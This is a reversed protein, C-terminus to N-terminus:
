WMFRALVSAIISGLAPTPHVTDDYYLSNAPAAIPALYNLDLIQYCGMGSPGASTIAARLLPLNVNAGGTTSTTALENILIVRAYPSALSALLAKLDILAQAVTTGAVLFNNIGALVYVTSRINPAYCAAVSVAVTAQLQAPTKGGNAMSFVSATKGIRAAFQLSITEIKSAFPLANLFRSDGVLFNQSLAQPRIDFRAYSSYRLAKMTSASQSTKAVGFAVLEMAGYNDNSITPDRAFLWGSTYVDTDNPISVTGIRENVSTTLTNTSFNAMVVCPQSDLPTVPSPTYASGGRVALFEGSTYTFMEVRRRDAVTTNALDGLTALRGYGGGAAAVGCGYAYMMCANGSVGFGSTLPSTGSAIVGAPAKLTRFTGYQPESTLCYRGTRVSFAVLPAAYSPHKVYHNGAGSHDYAKICTVVTGNDARGMAAQLKLVDIEGGPLVNITFTTDTGSITVNIDWTPGTYGALGAVSGGAFLTNAAGVIDTFCGAVAPLQGWAAATSDPTAVPQYLQGGAQWISAATYGTSANDGVSPPRNFQDPQLPIVTGTPLTIGATSGDANTALQAVTAAGARITPLGDISLCVTALGGDLGVRRLYLASSALNIQLEKGDNRELEMWAGSDVKYQVDCALSTNTVTVASSALSYAVAVGASGPAATVAVTLPTVEVDASIQIKKAM